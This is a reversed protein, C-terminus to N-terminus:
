RSARDIHAAYWRGSEKVTRQQTAYDVHVIGFRRAYGHAWEFNDFLSWVFYGRVDAGAVIAREVAAIHEELYTRREVDPITGDDAVEDPYAAGNECVVLPPAGQRALDVLLAELGDPEVSWGMATTPEPPDLLRVGDAGPFMAPAPAHPDAAVHHRTYYNVGLLDGPTAIVDLDGPAVVSDADFRRMLEEIGDPYTAHLLPDLFFRNQLDDVAAAAALDAPDDSAAVVPILNLVIGFRHHTAANARLQQMALGHALLLHHAARLSTAGDRIGPAHEGSAHGLFASCWPENLTTWWSVLDGLEDHVIHAYRAFAEATAREAWGGHDQLAQPLDWHYLTVVPEIDHDRLRQAVARYFALGRREVAGTGDPIVRPWAISFRYADLGLTAMLEVDDEWRRYHDIAIDGTDGRAVRGPTHSFTDWISAGRGAADVSGEIQYAATAAGWMFTPRDGPTPVTPTTM